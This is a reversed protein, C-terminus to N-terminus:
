LFFLYFNGTLFFFFAVLELGSCYSYRCGLNGALISEVGLVLEIRLKIWNMNLVVEKLLHDM